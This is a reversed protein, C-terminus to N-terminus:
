IKKRSRDKCKTAVTFYNEDSSFGNFRVGDDHVIEISEYIIRCMCLFLM